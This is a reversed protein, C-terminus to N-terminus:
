DKKERGHDRLTRVSMIIAIVSIVISACSILISIKNLM